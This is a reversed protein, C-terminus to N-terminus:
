VHNPVRVVFWDELERDVYHISHLYRVGLPSALFRCTTQTRIPTLCRHEVCKFLLPAGIEGLHDLAPRHEVVLALMDPESCAEEILSVALQCVELAPDYLQTLLLRVLWDKSTSSNERFLKGLQETALLRVHQALISTPFPCVQWLM